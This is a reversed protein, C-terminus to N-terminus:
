QRSLPYVKTHGINANALIPINALAPRERVFDVIEQDTVGSHDDEDKLKMFRGIVIGRVGVFDPRQTLAELRRVFMSLTASGCENDDELFLVSGHLSPMFDEGSVANLMMTGLNNGLLVGEGQGPNIVVYGPNPIPM